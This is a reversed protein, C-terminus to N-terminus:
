TSAKGQFLSVCM